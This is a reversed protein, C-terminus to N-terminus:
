TSGGDWFIIQKVSIVYENLLMHIYNGDIDINMIM